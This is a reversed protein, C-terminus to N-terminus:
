GPMKNLIIKQIDQQYVLFHQQLNKLSNLAVNLDRETQHHARALNNHTQELRNMRENLEILADYPDFDNNMM